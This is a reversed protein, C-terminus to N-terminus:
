PAPIAGNSNPNPHSPSLPEHLLLISLEYDQAGHLCHGASVVLGLLAAVARSAAIAADASGALIRQVDQQNDTPNRSPVDFASRCYLHCSALHGNFTIM